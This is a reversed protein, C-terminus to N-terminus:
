VMLCFLKSWYRTIFKLKNMLNNFFAKMESRINEISSEDIERKMEGLNSNVDGATLSANIKLSNIKEEAREIENRQDDTVNKVKIAAVKTAEQTMNEVGTKWKGM